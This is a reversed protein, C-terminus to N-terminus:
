KDPVIKVQGPCTSLRYNGDRSKPVLPNPLYSVPIRWFKKNGRCLDRLFPREGRHGVRIRPNDSTLCFILELGDVRMFYIPAGM